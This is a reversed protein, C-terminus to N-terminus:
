GNSRFAQPQVFVVRCYRPVHGPTSRRLGGLTERCFDFNGAPAHCRCNERQRATGAHDSHFGNRDTIKCISNQAKSTILMYLTAGLSYIDDLVSAKEGMVQQPSMFILTGSTTRRTTVQSVSDSRAIGFDALKLDGKRNVMLNAPKLDRHAVKVSLHAYDLAGCLQRLWTELEAPEFIKTEKQLRLTSLTAGDVYEMSIAAANADDVFDYIRVIHPHTLGLSKRTERKLDDLVGADAKLIEPIFKLAVEWELREDHALCVIGMSGQGLVRQLTYRSFVKQGAALGRLTIGLDLNEPSINQRDDIAM